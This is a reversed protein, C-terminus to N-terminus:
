FAGCAALVGALLGAWAGYLGVRALPHWRRIVGAFALVPLLGVAAWLGVFVWWPPAGTHNGEALAMEVLLLALSAALFALAPLYLELYCLGRAVPGRGTRVLYDAAWGGVLAATLFCALTVLQSWWVGVTARYYRNAELLDQHAAAYAPANELRTPDRRDPPVLRGLDRLDLHPIDIDPQTLRVHAGDPEARWAPPEEARLPYLQVHADTVLLPALFLNCVWAALLGAAAAAGLAAAPTRPRVGARLLWAAALWLGLGGAVVGWRAAPVERARYAWGTPNFCSAAEALLRVRRLSAHGETDAVYLLLGTLGGWAVGVAVVAAAAAANRRLWRWALGAAGPPRARTPEGGRWRELDDALEGATRYRGAPDKALCKLAIAALDRDAAPNLARPDDPERELVQLITDLASGARFPPRGTLLEYLIAGLAYVDAATTLQKEARAQEPAMYSPTGVVAGTRTLGGDSGLRKALGFDTVLPAGAADLLINAPKLDRHLIGRQHAFEVARAVQAVLRAAEKQSIASPQSSATRALSGGEALKMSFYPRGDHEGVEYIPLIHPHDLNAAAEAEARFRQVDAPSAFEGSLILKLAVVRNLSVQRAKFVVGMGGRAIEELLEYDGFYRVVPVSDPRGGDPGVTAADRLRLPGALRDMRDLDDFYAALESALGPHAALLAQRDPSEGREVAQLYGALVDGLPSPNAPDPM